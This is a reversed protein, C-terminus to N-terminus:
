CLVTKKPIEFHLNLSVMKFWELAFSKPLFSAIFPKSCFNQFNLHEKEMFHYTLYNKLILHVFCLKYNQSFEGIECLKMNDQLHESLCKLSSMNENM